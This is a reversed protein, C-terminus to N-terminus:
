CPAGRAAAAWRLPAAADQPLLLEKTEESAAAAAGASAELDQPELGELEVEEDAGRGNLQQPAPPQPQRPQPQQPWASAEGGVNNNVSGGGGGGSATVLGGGRFALTRRNMESFSM